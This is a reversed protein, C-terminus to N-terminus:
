FFPNYQKEYGITTSPGHGSYVKTEDPLTLLRERVAQILTAYDGRPLDTRGISGKFLADGTFVVGSDASYFSYSGPSHGPTHLVEFRIAGICIEEGDTLYHGIAQAPDTLLIGFRAASEQLTDLLFQDERGAMPQLQYTDYLFRNGAQHDFHLHTNLVAKLHLEREDVISKVYMKEEQSFMGADIIAANNQEDWVLYTNEQLPNLPLTLINM